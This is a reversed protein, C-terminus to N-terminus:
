KPDSPQEAAADMEDRLKDLLDGFQRVARESMRLHAVTITIFKVGADNKKEDTLAVPANAALEFQFIPGNSGFAAVGDTYIFPAAESAVHAPRKTSPPLHKIAM